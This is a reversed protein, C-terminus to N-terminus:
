HVWGPESVRATASRSSCDGGFHFHYTSARSTQAPAVTPQSREGPKKLVWAVVAAATVVAVVALVIMARRWAVFNM